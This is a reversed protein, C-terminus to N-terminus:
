PVFDLAVLVCYWKETLVLELVYWIAAVPYSSAWSQTLEIRLLRSRRRPRLSEEKGEEEEEEATVEAAEDGTLEAGGEGRGGRAEEGEEDGEVRSFFGEVEDDEEEV